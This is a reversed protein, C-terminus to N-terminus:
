SGTKQLVSNTSSRKSNTWGPFSLHFIYGRMRQNLKGSLHQTHRGTRVRVDECQFIIVTTRKMRPQVLVTLLSSFVGSDLVAKIEQIDSLAFSELEMQPLNIFDDVDFCTLHHRFTVASTKKENEHLTEITIVLSKPNGDNNYSSDSHIVASYWWECFILLDFLHDVCQVKEISLNQEGEDFTKLFWRLWITVSVVTTKHWYQYCCCYYSFTM